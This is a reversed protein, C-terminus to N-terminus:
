KANLTAMLKSIIMKNRKQKKKREEDMLEADLAADEIASLRQLIVANGIMGRRMILCEFKQM